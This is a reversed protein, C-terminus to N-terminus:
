KLSDVAKQQKYELIQKLYSDFQQQALEIAQGGVVDNNIYNSEGIKVQDVKLDCHRSDIYSITRGDEKTVTLILTDYEPWMWNIRKFEVHENGLTDNFDYRSDCVAEGHCGNLAM